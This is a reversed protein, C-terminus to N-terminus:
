PIRRTGPGRCLGCSKNRRVRKSKQRDSLYVSFVAWPVEAHNKKTNREHSTLEVTKESGKPANSNGKGHCPQLIASLFNAKSFAVQLSAPSVKLLTPEPSLCFKVRLQPTFALTPSLSTSLNFDPSLGPGHLSPFHPDPGGWPSLKPSERPPAPSSLSFLPAMLPPPPNKPHLRHAVQENEVECPSQHLDGM